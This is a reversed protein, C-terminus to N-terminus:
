WHKSLVEKLKLSRRRRAYLTQSRSWTCVSVLQHARIYVCASSHMCVEAQSNYIRIKGDACGVVIKSYEQFVRGVALANFERPIIKQWVRRCHVSIFLTLSCVVAFLSSGQKRGKCKTTPQHFHLHKSFFFM